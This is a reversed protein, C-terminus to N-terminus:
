GTAQLRARRLREVDSRAYRGFRGPEVGARAALRDFDQLSLGLEEAAEWRDCSAARWARRQDGVRRLEEVLAAAPLIKWRTEPAAVEVLPWRPDAFGALLGRRVLERVDAPAVDALGAWQGLVIAAVKLDVRVMPGVPGPQGSALEGRAVGV